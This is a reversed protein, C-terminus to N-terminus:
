EENLFPITIKELKVADGVIFIKPSGMLSAVFHNREKFKNQWEEPSYAIIQIDRGIREEVEAIPEALTMLSHKGIVMLDIDSLPTQESTSFSGFVFAVDIDPLKRVAESLIRLGGISKELLMRLPPIWPHNKNLIFRNGFLRIEKEITTLVTGLDQPACHGSRVNKILGLNSLIKMNRRCDSQSRGTLKELDRSGLWEDPNQLFCWLVDVRTGSGFLWDIERESTEIPAPLGNNSSTLEIDIPRTKSGKSSM